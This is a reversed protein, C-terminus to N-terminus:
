VREIAERLIRLVTDAGSRMPNIRIMRNELTPDAALFTGSVRYFMPAIEYKSEAGVPNPAAGLKQAECLVSKAIDEHFEVLLVKSQANALFAKKVGKVEGGNLRQVCEENVQAQIALAAPAYVMGRLVDLAEHGQTQSGGSYHMKVIKDIVARKGIVCGIGEPGLLKFASFCSVDAGCQSGIKEVKMVAYNDDTIVPIERCSKITRIVSEMEYSDEMSQRTYQVLAAKIEPHETLVTRINDLDNFDARVTRIGMMDLSNQTTNYVAATHVLLTDGPTLLACLAYRIAGTGAGRVFCAAEADFVAAAAKEAKRTTVPKNLGPVVGLDGRSLIEQGEFERTICDVVKFQLRLAEELSITKLPYTRM